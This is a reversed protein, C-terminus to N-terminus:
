GREMEFRFRNRVGRTPQPVGDVVRPRYRFREAARVAAREFVRHSSEIVRVNEVTGSGSVDFEVVVWGELNVPGDFLRM